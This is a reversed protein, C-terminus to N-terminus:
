AERLYVDFVCSQGLRLKRRAIDAQKAFFIYREEPETVVKPKRQVERYRTSAGVVTEIVRVIKPSLCQFSIVADRPNMDHQLRKSVMGGQM